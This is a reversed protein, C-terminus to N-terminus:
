IADLRLFNVCRQLCYVEAAFFLVMSMSNAGGTRFWVDFVAWLLIVHVGFTGCVLLWFGVSAWLKRYAAIMIGFLGVTLTIEAERRAAVGFHTSVSAVGLGLAVLVVAIGWEKTSRLM